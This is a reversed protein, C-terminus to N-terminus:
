TGELLTDLNLANSKTKFAMITGYVEGLIHDEHFLIIFPEDEAANIELRYHDQAMLLDYGKDFRRYVKVSSLRDFISDIGKEEFVHITEYGSDRYVSLEISEIEEPLEPFYDLDALDIPILLYTALLVAVVIGLIIGKKEKLNKM